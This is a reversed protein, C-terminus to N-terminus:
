FYISYAINGIVVVILVTLVFRQITKFKKIRTDELTSFYGTKLAEQLKPNVSSSLFMPDSHIEQWQKPYKQELYRCLNRFNLQHVMVLMIMILLPFLVEM